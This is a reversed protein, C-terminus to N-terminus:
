KTWKQDSKPVYWETLPTLGNRTRRINKIRDDYFITTKSTFLFTYPQDEHFIEHVKHWLPMREEEVVMKRAKEVLADFEPNSYSTTNDGPPQIMKSHFIQYPDGELSGSWGLTCAGFDRTSKLTEILVSWELPRPQLIVGASVMSDKLLLVMQEYIPSNAPYILDFKFDEGDKSELVGNGDRDEFGAEKLLAKAREPDFPWPEVDPNVQKSLPNFPSTSIIGFGLQIEDIIRQRDILMTMAQRVRKDAFFTPKGNRRQNWGIYRYGAAPSQFEFHQTRDMLEENKLLSVYQDPQAPFEDIDGNVFTTLRAAPLEIMRWILKDFPAPEGWYRENRVLELPVGPEPRWNKPDELRYPGSGLLLGPATNFESPPIEEYFHKPLISMTGAVEFAEFYPERFHFAVTDEDVKEVERIMEYYAKLRPSEVEPDMILNFSFVVDDVTLPRGDSFRVNKRLDFTITVALPADPERVIDEIRRGEKKRAEIYAKAKAADDKIEDYGPEQQIEEDTLAIGQREDIYAQWEDSYDKIDWGTAIFPEWELTDPDRQILSELVYNQVTSAYADSSVLPTLRDPIVSFVDIFLDGRAYDENQKVEAIRRFPDSGQSAQGNNGGQGSSVVMGNNLRRNMSAIDASQGDVATKISLLVDHQRDAQKMMFWLSIILVIFLITYLLDKFGFRNEM